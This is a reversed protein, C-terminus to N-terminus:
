LFNIIDAFNRLFITGHGMFIKSFVIFQADNSLQEALQMFKLYDATRVAETAASNRLINPLANASAFKLQLNLTRLKDYVALINGMEPLFKQMINRLLIGMAKTKVLQAEFMLSKFFDTSYILKKPEDVFTNFESDSAFQVRLENTADGQEEM